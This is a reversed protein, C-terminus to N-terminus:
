YTLHAREKEPQFIHCEHKGGFFIINGVKVCKPESTYGHRFEWSM